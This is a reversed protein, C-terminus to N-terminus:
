PTSLVHSWAYCMRGEHSSVLSGTVIGKPGVRANPMGVDTLPAAFGAYSVGGISLFRGCKYRLNTSGFIRVIERLRGYMAFVNDVPAGNAGLNGHAAHHKDLCELFEDARFANCFLLGM